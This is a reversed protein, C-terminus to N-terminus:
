RRSPDGGPRRWSARHVTLSATPSHQQPLTPNFANSCPAADALGESMAAKMLRNPLVLGCRLRLPDHVNTM